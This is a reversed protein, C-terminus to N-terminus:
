VVTGFEHSLVHIVSGENLIPCFITLLYSDIIINRKCQGLCALGSM